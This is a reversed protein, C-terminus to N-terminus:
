PPGFDCSGCLIYASRTMRQCRISIALAFIRGLSHRGAGHEGSEEAAEPGGFLMAGMAIAFGTAAKGFSLGVAAPVAVGLAAGLVARWGVPGHAAWGLMETVHRNRLM